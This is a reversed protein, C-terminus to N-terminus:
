NDYCLRDRLTRVPLGSAGIFQYNTAGGNCIARLGHKTGDPVVGYPTVVITGTNEPFTGVDEFGKPVLTVTSGTAVNYFQVVCDTNSGTPQYTITFPVYLRICRASLIFIFSTYVGGNDDSITVTIEFRGGYSVTHSIQSVTAVQGSAKGPPGSLNQSITLISSTGDGWDVTGTLVDLTGMDYVLFSALTLSVTSTEFNSATVTLPLPNFPPVNLITILQQSIAVGGDDDTLTITITYVGVDAYYHSDAATASVGGVVGPPGIPSESVLAFSNTGDGWSILITHTDLSGL